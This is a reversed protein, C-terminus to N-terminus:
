LRSYRICLQVTAGCNACTFGSEERFKIYVDLQKLEEDFECKDIYWPEPIHFISEIHKMEILM